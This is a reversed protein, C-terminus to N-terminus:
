KHLGMVRFQVIHGVKESEINKSIGFSRVIINHCAQAISQKNDHSKAVECYMKLQLNWFRKGNVNM